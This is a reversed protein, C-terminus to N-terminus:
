RKYFSYQFLVAILTLLLSMIGKSVFIIRESSITEVNEQAYERVNKSGNPRSGTKFRRDSVFVTEQNIKFFRTRKKFFNRFSIFLLYLPGIIPMLFAGSFTLSNGIFNQSFLEPKFGAKTLEERNVYNEASITRTKDSSSQSNGQRIPTSHKDGYVKNSLVRGGDRGLQNVASRVFGRGLNNLFSM